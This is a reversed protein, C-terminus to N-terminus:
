ARGTAESIPIVTRVAPGIVQDGQHLTQLKAGGEKLMAEDAIAYRRYITETKHGVMKM